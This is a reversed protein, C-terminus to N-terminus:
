DMESMRRHHRWHWERRVQLTFDFVSRWPIHSSLSSTLRVGKKTSQVAKSIQTYTSPPASSRTQFNRQHLIIPAAERPTDWPKVVVTYRPRGGETSTNYTCDHLRLQTEKPRTNDIKFLQLQENKINLKVVIARSLIQKHPQQWKPQKHVRPKSRTKKFQIL